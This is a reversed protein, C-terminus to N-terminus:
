LAVLTLEFTGVSLPASSSPYHCFFNCCGIQHGNLRLIPHVPLAPQVGCYVHLSWATAALGGDMLLLHFRFHLALAHAPSAARENAPPPARGPSALLLPAPSAAALLLPEPVSRVIVPPPPVNASTSSSNPVTTTPQTSPSPTSLPCSVPPTLHLGATPFTPWSISLVRCTIEIALLFRILPLSPPACASWFCFDGSASSYSPRATLAACRVSRISTSTLALASSPAAIAPLSM